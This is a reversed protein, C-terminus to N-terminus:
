KIPKVSNDLYPKINSIMGSKKLFKEPLNFGAKRAVIENVQIKTKSTDSDYDIALDMITGREAYGSIDGISLISKGSIYELIDKLKKNSVEAIYLIHCPSPIQGPEEINEVKFRKGRMEWGSAQEILSKGFPNNIVAIVLPQNREDIGTEKPWNIDCAIMYIIRAKLTYENIESMKKGELFPSLLVFFLLLLAVIIKKAWLKPWFTKRLIM